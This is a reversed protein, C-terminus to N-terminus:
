RPHFPPLCPCARFPLPELLAYGPVQKILLMNDFIDVLYIGWLSQATPQCAVLFYKESLPYPHLFKPWSGDVLNDSILTSTTGRTPPRSSRWGMVPFGSFPGTRNAAVAVSTSCCWNAWGRCAMTGASSAWSCAQVTPSDAARYFLSNPWYSNSGYFEMQETGDPNM